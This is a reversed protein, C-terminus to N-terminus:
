VAGAIGGEAFGKVAGTLGASLSGFLDKNKLRSNSNNSDIKSLCESLLYFLLM